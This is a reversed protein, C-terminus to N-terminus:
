CILGGSYLNSSLVSKNSSSCVVCTMYIKSELMAFRVNICDSHMCTVVVTGVSEVNMAVREETSTCEKSVESANM